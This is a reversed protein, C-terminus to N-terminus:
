CSRTNGYHVCAKNVSNQFVTERLFNRETKRSFRGIIVASNLVFSETAKTYLVLFYLCATPLVSRSSNTKSYYLKLYSNMYNKINPHDKAM